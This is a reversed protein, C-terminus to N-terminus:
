ARLQQYWAGKPFPIGFVTEFRQGVSGGLTGMLRFATAMDRAYMGEPWIGGEPTLVRGQAWLINHNMPLVPPPSPPASLSSVIMLALPSPAPSTTRTPSSSPSSSSSSSLPSPSFSRTVKKQSPPTEMTDTCHRKLSRSIPPHKPMHKEILEDIRPCSVVYLRRILLVQGTSVEMVHNVDERDWCRGDFDYIYIEDAATLGMKNLLSPYDILNLRPWLLIGQQRLKEPEEGDKGWYCFRVQREYLLDQERRKKEAQKRQEQAEHNTNYHPAWQPDMVKHLKPPPPQAPLLCVYTPSPLSSLARWLRHLVLVVPTSRWNQPTGRISLRKRAARLM